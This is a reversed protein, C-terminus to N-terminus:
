EYRLSEIPDLRSARWAPYFGFIIGSGSAAVLAAVMAALSPITQWHLLATVALAASRGLLVGAGGGLLCLIVAETLFQRLIDRARAGVAMRLGIERTRELVSALMINMIGVGGVVLSIVAVWLLLSTVLRQTSALTQSIETLDRIRFDNPQDDGLHHRQRLLDTIQRIAEPVDQPSKAAVWIDDLDTFRTMQPWDALQAASPLPYPNISQNPYLQSLTNGQVTPGAVPTTAARAGSLRFKVTTWPAVVYDDQDRGMMNAGKPSLVGVVTMPVNKVRIEQGIPSQGAFLERVVTQGVLCVRAAKLVDQDTFPEGEALPLWNRITLFESTAGLINMPSWNRHGWVIQARCDVSPAAWEVASCERRIAECDAPLLTVRSGAGSSAGSKVLDSPDIQIVSGGISAIAQQVAYSAGQGIEIMAIVSAVGIAIGLGALISRVPHCRLSRLATRLTRYFSGM